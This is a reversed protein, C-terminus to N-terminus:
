PRHVLHPSQRAMTVNDFYSRPLFQAKGRREVILEDSSRNAKHDATRSEIGPGTVIVSSSPLAQHRDPRDALVVVRANNVVGWLM